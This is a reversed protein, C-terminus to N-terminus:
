EPRRFRVNEGGYGFGELQRRLFVSYLDILRDARVLYQPRIAPDFQGAEPSLSRRPHCLVRVQLRDTSLPAAAWSPPAELLLQLFRAATGTRMAKVYHM